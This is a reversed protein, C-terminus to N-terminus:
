NDDDDFEAGCKPCRKANAPVQAGCESCEFTEETVDTTGDVHVIETEISDFKAGCRPCVKADAPVEVGCAECTFYDKKHVKMEEPIEIYTGCKRCVVEGPLVIAGCQKCRGYGQPYLRGEAEMKDRAKYAAKRMATTIALMFFFIIMAYAIVVATGYFSLKTSDSSSIGTDVTFSKWNDGQSVKMYYLKGDSLDMTLSGHYFGDPGTTDSVTMDVKETRCNIAGFAVSDIVGYEVVANGTELFAVSLIDSADDFTVDKFHDSDKGIEDATAGAYDDYMLTGVPLAVLIFVVGIVTKIKPSMVGMLHPIMYLLIAIIAFGFCQIGFGLVELIVGIAIAVAIAIWQIPKLSRFEDILSKGGQKNESM